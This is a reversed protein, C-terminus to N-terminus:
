TKRVSPAQDHYGVHFSSITNSNDAGPTCARQFFLLIFACRLLCFGIESASARNGSYSKLLPTRPFCAARYEAPVLTTTKSGSTAESNRVASSTLLVRRATAASSRSWLFRVLRFDAYNNCEISFLCNGRARDKIGPSRAPRCPRSSRHERSPAMPPGQRAKVVGPIGQEFAM